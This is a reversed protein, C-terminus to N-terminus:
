SSRSFERAKRNKCALTCEIKKCFLQEERICKSEVIIKKLCLFPPDRIKQKNQSQAFKKSFYNHTKLFLPKKELKPKYLEAISHSISHSKM